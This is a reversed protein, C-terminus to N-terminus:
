PQSKDKEGLVLAFVAFDLVYKPEVYVCRELSSWSTLFHESTKRM